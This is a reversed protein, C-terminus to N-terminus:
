VRRSQLAEYQPGTIAVRDVDYHFSCFSTGNIVAYSPSIRRQQLYGDLRDPSKIKQVNRTEIKTVSDSSHSFPIRTLLWM